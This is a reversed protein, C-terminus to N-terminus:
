PQIVGLEKVEGYGYVGKDYIQYGKIIDINWQISIKLNELDAKTVEDKEALESVDVLVKHFLLKLESDEQQM